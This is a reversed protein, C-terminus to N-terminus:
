RQREAERMQTERQTETKPMGQRETETETM